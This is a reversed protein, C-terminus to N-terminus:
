QYFCSPLSEGSKMERYLALWKQGTHASLLRYRDANRLSLRRLEDGRVVCEEMGQSISISDRPDVFIGANPCLEHFVPIDSVVLPCYHSLGELVPLGLGEYFSCVILGSAKELYESYHEMSEFTVGTSDIKNAIDDGLVALSYGPRHQSFRQFAEIVAFTNKHAEGWLTIFRKERSAKPRKCDHRLPPYYVISKKASGKLLKELDSQTSRSNCVIRDTKRFLLKQIRWYWTRKTSACIPARDWFEVGCDHVTCCIKCSHFLGMGIRFLPGLAIWYHFVDIRYKMILLPILFLDSKWSRPKYEIWKASLSHFREPVSKKEGWIIFRDNMNAEGIADAMISTYVGVGRLGYGYSFLRFDWLINM